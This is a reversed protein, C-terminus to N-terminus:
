KIKKEKDTDYEVQSRKFSERLMICETEKQKLYNYINSETPSNLYNRRRMTYCDTPIYGQEYNDKAFLDAGYEVLLICVNFLKQNNIDTEYMADQECLLHLPTSGNYTKHNINAGNHILYECANYCADDHRVIFHNHTLTRYLPTTGFVNVHNVCCGSDVLLKFINLNFKDYRIMCIYMLLNNCNNHLLMHINAGLEILKKSKDYSGRRIAKLLKRDLTSQKSESVETM